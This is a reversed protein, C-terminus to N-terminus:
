ITFDLHLRAAGQFSSDGHTDSGGYKGGGAENETKIKLYPGAIKSDIVARCGMNSLTHIHTHKDM